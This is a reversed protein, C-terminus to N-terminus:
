KKQKAQQLTSKNKKERYKEVRLKRKVGCM